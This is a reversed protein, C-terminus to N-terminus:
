EFDSSRPCEELSIGLVILAYLSYLFCNLERLPMLPLKIKKKHFAIIFWGINKPLNVQNVLFNAIAFNKFQWLKLMESVVVRSM